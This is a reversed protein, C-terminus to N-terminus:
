ASPSPAKSASRPCSTSTQRSTSDASITSSSSCTPVSIESTFSLPGNRYSPRSGTLVAGGILLVAGGAIGSFHGILSDFSAIGNGNVSRDSENM